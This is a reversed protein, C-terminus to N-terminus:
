VNVDHAAAVLYSARLVFPFIQKLGNSVEIGFHVFDLRGTLDYAGFSNGDHCTQVDSMFEQLQAAVGSLLGGKVHVGELTSDIQHLCHEILRQNWLFAQESRAQRLSRGQPTQRPEYIRSGVNSVETASGTDNHARGENGSHLRIYRVHGSLLWRSSHKPEPDPGPPMQPSGKLPLAPGLGASRKKESGPM